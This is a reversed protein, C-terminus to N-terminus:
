NFVKHEFMIEKRVIDDLVEDSMSTFILSDAQGIELNLQYSDSEKFEDYYSEFKSEILTKNGYSAMLDIIMNLSDQSLGENVIAKMQFVDTIYAISIRGGDILELEAYHDTMETIVLGANNYTIIKLALAEGFTQAFGNIAKSSETYSTEEDTRTITVTGMNFRDLVGEIDCLRYVMIMAQERTATGLPNILDLGSSAKGVGRIISHEYCYDLGQRAWDAITEEYEYDELVMTDKDPNVAKVLNLMLVAIEQRSIMSDPRFSGDGYGNILGANYAKVITEEYAHGDIDSFPFQKTVQVLNGDREYGALALAVYEGRTIGDQYNAQLEEPVVRNDIAKEVEDVAWLSPSTGAFVVNSFLMVILIFYTIKRKKMGQNM